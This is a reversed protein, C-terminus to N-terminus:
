LADIENCLVLIHDLGYLLHGENIGMWQFLQLIGSYYQRIFSTDKTISNRQFCIPEHHAIRNRIKNIKALEQFIYTHNYNVFASSRPRGPFIQLLTRGTRRYQHAGFMYRWFGFNLAAVLKNHNCYAGLDRITDNIIGRTVRCTRDDFIGGTSAGNVLWNEGLVTLYHKDIANRLAIEFCSIVTFMEQSLRLNKRYLTMAKRTNGGSAQKYRNMRPISMISEFDQYKM